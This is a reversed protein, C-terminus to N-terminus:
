QHPLRSSKNGGMLMKFESRKPKRAKRTGQKQQGESASIGIEGTLILSLPGGGFRSKCIATKVKELLSNSADSFSRAFMGRSRRTNPEDRRPFVM